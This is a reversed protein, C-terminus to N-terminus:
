YKSGLDFPPLNYLNVQAFPITCKAKSLIFITLLYTFTRMFKFGKKVFVIDRKRFHKNFNYKHCRLVKTNDFNKTFSAFRWFCKNFNVLKSNFPQSKASSILVM